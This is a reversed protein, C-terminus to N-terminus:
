STTSRASWMLLQLSLYGFNVVQLHWQKLDLVYQYQKFIYLAM